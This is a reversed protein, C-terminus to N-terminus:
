CSGADARSRARRPALWHSLCSGRRALVPLDTLADDVARLHVLRDDHADDVADAVRQVVLRQLAGLLQVHVVLRVVGPLAVANSDGLRARQRLVLAPAEDLDQLTRSSRAQSRILSFLSGGEPDHSHSSPARMIWCSDRRRTASLLPALSTSQM